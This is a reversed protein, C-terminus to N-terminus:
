SELYRKDSTTVVRTLFSLTTTLRPARPNGLDTLRAWTRALVHTDLSPVTSVRSLFRTQAPSIRLPPTDEAMRFVTHYVSEDVTTIILIRRRCAYHGITVIDSVKAIQWRLMLRDKAAHLRLRTWHSHLNVPPSGELPGTCLRSFIGRAKQHQLDYSIVVRLCTYDGTWTNCLADTASTRQCSGTV